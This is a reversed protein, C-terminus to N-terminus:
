LFLILLYKTFLYFIDNNNLIIFMGSDGYNLVLTNDTEKDLLQIQSCGDNFIGEIESEDEDLIENNRRVEISAKDIATSLDIESEESIENKNNTDNTHMSVDENNADILIIFPDISIPLNAPQIMGLFEALESAL